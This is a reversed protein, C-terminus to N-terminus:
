KRTIEFGSVGGSRATSGGFSSAKEVLVSLGEDAAKLAATM